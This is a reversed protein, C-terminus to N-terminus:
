PKFAGDEVLRARGAEDIGLEGLIAETHEGLLPPHMRVAQPTGQFKVAFGINPVSGEVPHDIDMRMKRHKAHDSNFAEVYNLLPGAPLGAALLTEVWQAATRTAFTRELEGILEERNRLRAPIDRYQGSELLDSRDLLKCLQAFLKDSTAGMVFYGDSARVAQYPASM